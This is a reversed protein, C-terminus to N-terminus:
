LFEGYDVFFEGTWM